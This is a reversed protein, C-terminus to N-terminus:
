RASPQNQEAEKGSKLWAERGHSGPGEVGQRPESGRRCSDWGEPLAEEGKAPASVKSQAVKM